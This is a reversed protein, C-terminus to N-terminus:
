AMVKGGGKDFKCIEHGDDNNVDGALRIEATITIV